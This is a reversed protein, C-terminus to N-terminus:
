ERPLRHPPRGRVADISLEPGALDAVDGRGTRKGFKGQRRSVSIGLLNDDVRRRM